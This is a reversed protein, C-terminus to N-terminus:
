SVGPLLLRDREAVAFRRFPELAHFRAGIRPRDPWGGAGGLALAVGTARAIRGLEEAERRLGVADACHASASVCLMRAGRELIPRLEAVPTRRGAWEVRWGAERLVLEVLSLGLTHDEGQATTLVARPARPDVPLAEAVRALARALRESALHEEGISVAGSAWLEGLRGLAEGAIAAVRYWSGERARAGLLLAQLALPDASELLAGIWPERDVAREERHAAALFADVHDRPFRRHGGATRVCRLAGADSWRKVATPGVGALRAVDQTSLLEDM